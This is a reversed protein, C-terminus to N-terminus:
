AVKALVKACVKLDAVFQKYQARKDADDEIRLIYSPHITALMHCGDSLPIVRGRIKNIALPRGSVSRIATAGLAVLIDPRVITREFDLWWHCRDIEYANPRKHLRRKGRQEFKFHKVANTVFVARREIGADALAKALIGGAPGVFPRGQWSANRAQLASLAHM